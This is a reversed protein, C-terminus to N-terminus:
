RTSFGSAADTPPSPSITATYSSTAVSTVPMNLQLPQWQDGDDFSVYVRLETAAYLLGKQKPDEKVSNVFAGEPIGKVM